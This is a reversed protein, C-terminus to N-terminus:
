KTRGPHYFNVGSPEGVSLSAPEGTNEPKHDIGASKQDVCESGRERSAEDKEPKPIHRRQVPAPQKPNWRHKGTADSNAHCEDGFRSWALSAESMEYAVLLMVGLLDACGHAVNKRRNCDVRDNPDNPTSIGAGSRNPLADILPVHAQHLFHM